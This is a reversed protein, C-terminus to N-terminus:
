VCSLVQYGAARCGRRVRSAARCGGRVRRAARCGLTRAAELNNPWLHHVVAGARAPNRLYAVAMARAPYMLYAVHPM